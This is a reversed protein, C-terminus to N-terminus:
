KCLSKMVQFHLWYLKFRAHERNGEFCGDWYLMKTTAFILLKEIGSWKVDISSDREIDRDRMSIFPHSRESDEATSLSSYCHLCETEQCQKAKHQGCARCKWQTLILHLCQILLELFNLTVNNKVIPLDTLAFRFLNSAQMHFVVFALCKRKWTRQIDCFHPIPKWLSM